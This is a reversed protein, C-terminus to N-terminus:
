PEAARHDSQTALREAEAARAAMQEYASRTAKRNRNLAAAMRHLDDSLEGLEGKSPLPSKPPSFDGQAINSMAHRITIFLATYRKSLFLLLLLSLLLITFGIWLAQHIAQNRANLVPAASLTVVVTGIQQPPSPNTNTLEDVAVTSALVPASFSLEPPANHTPSSIQGVRTLLHFDTDYLEVLQLDSHHIGQELQRNLAHMDGSFIAFECSPAIQHAVAQGHRQQAATLADWSSYVTNLTLAIWTFLAPVGGLFLMQYRFPWNSM